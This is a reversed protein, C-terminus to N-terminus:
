IHLQYILHKWRQTLRTAVELPITPSHKEFPDYVNPDTRHGGSVLRGKWLLFVGKADYKPKLLLSPVTVKTHVSPKRDSLRKLYRWSNLDVLSKIEKFAAAEAEKVFHTKMAEHWTMSDAAYVMCEVAQQEDLQTLYAHCSDIFNIDPKPRISVSTHKYDASSQRASYRTAIPESSPPPAPKPKPARVKKVSPAPIVIDPQDISVPATAPNDNTTPPPIISTPEITPVHDVPMEVAPVTDDHVPAPTTGDHQTDMSQVAEDLSRTMENKDGTIGDESYQLTEKFMFLGGGAKVPKRAAWDNMYTIWEKTFDM